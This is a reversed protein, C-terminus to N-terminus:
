RAGYGLSWCSVGVSALANVRRMHRAYESTSWTPQSVDHMMGQGHWIALKLKAISGLTVVNDRSGPTVIPLPTIRAAAGWGRPITVTPLTVAAATFDRRELAALCEDLDFGEHVLAMHAPAVGLWNAFDKLHYRKAVGRAAAPDLVPFKIPDITTQAPAWTDGNRIMRVAHGHCIRAAKWASRWDDDDIPPRYTIARDGGGKSPHRLSITGPLFRSAFGSTTVTGFNQITVSDDPHWTVVDTGYLRFAISRDALSRVWTVGHNCNLGLHFGYPKAIRNRGTPTLSARELAAQADAYGTVRRAEHHPTVRLYM